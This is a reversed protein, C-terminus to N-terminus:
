MNRDRSFFGRSVVIVGGQRRLACPVSSLMMSRSNPPPPPSPAAVLRSSWRDPSTSLSALWITSASRPEVCLRSPLHDGALEPIWRPNRQKAPPPKSPYNPFTFITNKKEILGKKKNTQTSIARCIYLYIFYFIHIRISLVFM